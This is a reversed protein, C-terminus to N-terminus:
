QATYGRRAAGLLLLGNILDTGPRIRMSGAPFAALRGGDREHRAHAPRVAVSDSVVRGYAGQPPHSLPRSLVLMPLMCGTLLAPHNEANLGFLPRCSSGHIVSLTCSM